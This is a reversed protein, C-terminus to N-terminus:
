RVCIVTKNDTKNLRDSSGTASFVYWAKSYDTVDTTSTWFWSGTNMGPLSSAPSYASWNVLTRLEMVNPLRWDDCGAWDLSECYELAGKWNKTSKQSAWQLGTKSDAYMKEGAVDKETFNTSDMLETGRVCRVPLYNTKSTM